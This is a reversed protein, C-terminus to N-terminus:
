LRAISIYELKYSALQVYVKYVSHDRGVLGFIKDVTVPTVSTDIRLVLNGSAVVPKGGHNKEVIEKKCYKAMM